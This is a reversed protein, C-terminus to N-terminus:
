LLNHRGWHNPLVRHLARFCAFEHLDKLPELTLPGKKGCILPQILFTQLCSLWTPQTQPCYWRTNKSYEPKDYMNLIFSQKELFSACFRVKFSRLLCKHQQLDTSSALFVYTIIMIYIKQELFPFGLLMSGGNLATVWLGPIMIQLISTFQNWLQQQRLSPIKKKKGSWDNLKVKFSFSGISRFFIVLVSTIILSVFNNQEEQAVSFPTPGFGLFFRHFSKWPRSSGAGTQSDSVSACWEQPKTYWHM